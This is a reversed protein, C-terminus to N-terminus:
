KIPRVVNVTEQTLVEARFSHSQNILLKYFSFSVVLNFTHTLPNFDKCFGDKWKLFSSFYQRKTDKM